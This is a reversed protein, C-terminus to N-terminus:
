FKSNKTYTKDYTLYKSKKLHVCKNLVTKLYKCIQKGNVLVLKVRIVNSMLM